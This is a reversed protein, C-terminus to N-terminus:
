WGFYPGYGRPDKDWLEMVEDFSKKSLSTWVGWRFHDAPFGIIPIEIVGRVFYYQNDVVCTDDTFHSREKIEDEPLGKRWGAYYDPFIVAYDLPLGTYTKGCCSCTWTSPISM